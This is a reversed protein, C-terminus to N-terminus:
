SKFVGQHCPLIIFISELDGDESGEAGRGDTDNSGEGSDKKGTSDDEVNEIGDPLIHNSKLEHAEGGGGDDM